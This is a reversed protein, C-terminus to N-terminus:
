RTGTPRRLLWYGGGALIAAAALVAALWPTSSGTRRDAAPTGTAATPTEVVRPAPPASTEAGAAHAPATAPTKPQPAGNPAATTSPPVPNPPLSYRGITAGTLPSTRLAYLAHDAAVRLTTVSGGWVARADLASQTIEGGASPLRLAQIEWLHQTPTQRAVEITVILDDGVLAPTSIMAGLDTRNTVQWVRVTRGTSSGLTFRWDRSSELRATLRRGDPLPQYATTRSDQEAPTLPRGDAATLPTWSGAGGPTVLYPV